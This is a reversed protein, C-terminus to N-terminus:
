DIFIQSQTVTRSNSQVKAPSNAKIKSTILEARKSIMKKTKINKLTNKFFDDKNLRYEFTNNAKAKTPYKAKPTLISEKLVTTIERREHKMNTRPVLSGLVINLILGTVPVKKQKLKITIKEKTEIIIM